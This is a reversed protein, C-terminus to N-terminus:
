TSEIECDDLVEYKELFEHPKLVWHRGKEDRIIWDRDAIHIFGNPTDVYCIGSTCSIVGSPHPTRDAHFQEADAEQSKRRVKM